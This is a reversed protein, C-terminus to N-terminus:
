RSSMLVLKIHGSNPAGGALPSWQLSGSASDSVNDILSDIRMAAARTTVGSLTLILQGSTGSTVNSDKIAPGVFALVANISDGAALGSAQYPGKWRGQALSGYASGAADLDASGIANYLDSVRGPYKRVDSVFATVSSRVSETM